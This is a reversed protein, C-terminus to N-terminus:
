LITTNLKIKFENVQPTVTPSIIKNSRLICNVKVYETMWRYEVGIETNKISQNFYINRGDHIYEYEGDNSNSVNFAPQELNKYSTINTAKTGGVDIVIPEYILNDFGFIQDGAKFVVEISYPVQIYGSPPTGTFNGFFGTQPIYTGVLGTYLTPVGSVIVSSTELDIIEFTAGPVSQIRLYYRYPDVLYIPNLLGWDIPGGPVEFIRTDGTITNIYSGDENIWNPYIRALGTTYAGTPPVYVYSNSDEIYDFSNSNIINYNIFPFSSLKIDNSPGTNNYIDPVSLAKDKFTSIVDISKATQDAFYDITYIKNRDFTDQSISIIIKGNAATDWTFTYDVNAILIRDNERIFMSSFAARFRTSATYTFPDVSLLENEVKLYGDAEFNSPFIPIKRDPALEIEWETSTKRYTGYDSNFLPHREDVELEVNSITSNPEFRESEYIGIPSYIVYNVEVERAGVIYEYKKVTEIDTSQRTSLQETFTSAEELLSKLSPDFVALGEGISMITQGTLDIETTLGMNLTKSGLSLALDNLADNYIAATGNILVNNINPTEALESARTEQLRLLFDTAYLINKPVKIVINRANEQALVIEIDTAFITEFNVEVWDLTEEVQFNAVPYRIRSSSTPKYTIELVKVPYNSFPYVKVQNISESSNFNINFFVIPGNVNTVIQGDSDPSWRNYVVEIPVNSYISEAWFTESTSDTAKSPPFQKSLQGQTGGIVKASLTTKKLGRNALHNRRKLINPLKLLRSDPDVVASPSQKTSNRSINFNVLKIDDYEPFRNRAAYVRTDNILKLISARAKSLDDFIATKQKNQASALYDVQSYIGRLDIFAGEMNSNHDQSSIVAEAKALVPTFVQKNGAATAKGVLRKAEFEIFRGTLRDSNKKITSLISKVADRHGVGILNAINNLLGM